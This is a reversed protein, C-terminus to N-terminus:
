TTFRKHLSPIDSRKLRTYQLADEGSLAHALKNVHVTLKEQYKLSHQAIEQWVTKLGFDFYIYRNSICHPIGFMTRLAKTNIVGTVFIPEPKPIYVKDTNNTKNTPETDLLEFSNRTPIVFDPSIKQKKNGDNHIPSTEKRKKRRTPIEDRQWEEHDSIIDDSAIPLTDTNM